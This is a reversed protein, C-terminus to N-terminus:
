WLGGSFIFNKKFFEFTYFFLFLFSSVGSGVGFLMTFFFNLFLNFQSFDIILFLFGSVCDVAVYVGVWVQWCDRNERSM